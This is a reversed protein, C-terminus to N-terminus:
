EHAPSGVPYQAEFMSLLELKGQIVNWEDRSITVVDVPAAPPTEPAAPSQVVEGAKFIEKLVPDSASAWVDSAPYANLDEVLSLFEKNNEAGHEDLSKQARNLAFLMNINM